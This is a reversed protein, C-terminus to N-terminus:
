KAYLRQYIIDGNKLKQAIKRSECSNYINKRTGEGNLTKASDRLEEIEIQEGLDKMETGFSAWVANEIVGNDASLTAVSIGSLILIVIITIVLTMLTIGSQNRNKKM